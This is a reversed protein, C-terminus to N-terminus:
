INNKIIIEAYETITEIDQAKEKREVVTDDNQDTNGKEQIYELIYYDDSSTTIRVIVIQDNDKYNLVLPKRNGYEISWFTSKVINKLHEITERHKETWHM